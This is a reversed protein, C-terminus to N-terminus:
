PVSQSGRLKGAGFETALLRDAGIDGVKDREGMPEDDFAITALM